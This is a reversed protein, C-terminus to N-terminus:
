LYKYYWKMTEKVQKDLSFKEKVRQFGAEGFKKAKDPNKLLDIIKEAMLETNNPDVVYGTKEDLIIERTGGFCTGVVPKRAAGAEINFLNFPDFYISPVVCADSSFIATKMQNGDLWGTFVVNDSINNDKIFKKMKEAYGDEKGVVLLVVGGLEESIKKIAKLIVEGGKASSLRGGFLIIKKNQLGYKNKFKSVNEPETKWEKIDIGNYITETNKIGNSELLEKLSNSITFIKDAYKLFYNISPRLLPNYRKRAEKIQDITNIKYACNNKKPFVKGYHVLMADHATLFVAKAYKKAIKLCYYSLVVHINHAHVIDPRIKKIISGVKRVTRPNYLSLWFRWREHYNSYVKFVKLGEHELEEEETKNNTTTIIFFEHGEQQLSKALNYAVIGAGGFSDPPFDDSLFVIKM